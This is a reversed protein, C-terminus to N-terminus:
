PIAIKQWQEEHKNQHFKSTCSAKVMLFSNQIDLCNSFTNILQLCAAQM